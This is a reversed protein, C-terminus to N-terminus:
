FAKSVYTFTYVIGGSESSFKFILDVGDNKVIDYTTPSNNFTVFLQKDGNLLAWTGNTTQPDTTACKSPGEDYIFVGGKEFRFIDDKSCSSWTAFYDTEGNLAPSVTCGTVKFNKGAINEAASSKLTTFEM